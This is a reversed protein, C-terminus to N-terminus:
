GYAIVVKDPFVGRNSWVRVRTEPGATPADLIPDAWVSEVRIKRGPTKLIGDFALKLDSTVEDATGFTIETDGFQEHLCGFLICTDSAVCPVDRKWLPVEVKATPDLIVVQSYEVGISITHKM